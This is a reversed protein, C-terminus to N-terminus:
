SELRNMKSTRRRDHESVVERACVVDDVGELGSETDRVDSEGEGFSGLGSKSIDDSRSCELREEGVSFSDGGLDFRNYFSYCITPSDGDFSDEHFIDGEAGLKM